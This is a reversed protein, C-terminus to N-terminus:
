YPAPKMKELLDSDVAQHLKNATAFEEKAEENRGMSKYLRGLRWHVNVDDPTLRAATTLERLAEEKRGADAYIIGLDLHPLALGPAKKAVRELIPLATDPRSMQMWADGMYIQAQKPRAPWCTPRLLNPTSCCYREICM